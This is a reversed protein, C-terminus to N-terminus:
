EDFTQEIIFTSGCETCKYMEAVKEQAKLLFEGSFAPKSFVIADVYM